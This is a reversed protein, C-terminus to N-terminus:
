AEFRKTRDIQIAQKWTDRLESVLDIIPEIKEAEKTMNAKLIENYIYIYLSMLNNSIEYNVDLTSMLEAIIDGAKILNNHSQEINKERIFAQEQKLFRICGDFLMLTLEAPTAALVSQQKYKEYPSVLNM